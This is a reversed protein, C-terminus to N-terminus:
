IICVYPMLIIRAMTCCHFSVVGEGLVTIPYCSRLHVRASFLSATALVLSKYDVTALIHGKDEAGIM